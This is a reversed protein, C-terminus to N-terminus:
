IVIYIKSLLETFRIFGLTCYKLIQCFKRKFKASVNDVIAVKWNYYLIYAIYDVYNM